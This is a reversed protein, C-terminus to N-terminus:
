KRKFRIEGEESMQKKLRDFRKLREQEGKRDNSNRINKKKEPRRKKPKYDGDQDYPGLRKKKRKGDPSSIEEELSEPDEILEELERSNEKSPRGDTNDPNKYFLSKKKLIDTINMDCMEDAEDLAIKLKHRRSPKSHKKKRAEVGSALSYVETDMALSMGTTHTPGLYEIHYAFVDGDKDYDVYIQDVPNRVIIGPWKPANQGVRAWVLTGEPLESYIYNIASETSMKRNYLKYPEEEVECKNHQQDKNMHCYWPMDVKQVEVDEKKVKRWKMCNKYECQVWIYDTLDKENLNEIKPSVSKSNRPKNSYNYTTIIGSDHRKKAQDVLIEQNEILERKTQLTEIEKVIPVAPFHKLYNEEFMFNFSNETKHDAVAKNMQVQEKLIRSRNSLFSSFSSSAPNSTTSTSGTSSITELKPTTTESSKTSNKSNKSKKHNSISNNKDDECSQQRQLIKSRESLFNEIQKQNEETEKKALRDTWFRYRNDKEQNYSGPVLLYILNQWVLDEELGYWPLDDHVKCGCIPCDNRIIPDPDSNSRTSRISRKQTDSIKTSSSVSNQLHSSSNPTSWHKLTSRTTFGSKTNIFNHNKATLEQYYAPDIKKYVLSTDHFFYM